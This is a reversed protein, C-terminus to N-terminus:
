VLRKCHMRFRSATRPGFFPGKLGSILNTCHSLTPESTARGISRHVLHAALDRRVAGMQQMIGEIQEPMNQTGVM